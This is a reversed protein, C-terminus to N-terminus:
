PWIAVPLGISSKFMAARWGDSLKLDKDFCGSGPRHKRITRPSETCSVIRRLRNAQQARAALPWTAVAGGLVAIFERRRMPNIRALWSPHPFVVLGRRFLTHGFDSLAAQNRSAVTAAGAAHDFTSAGAWRPLLPAGARECMSALNM